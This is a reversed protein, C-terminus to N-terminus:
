ENKAVVSQKRISLVEEEGIGLDLLFQHHAEPARREFESHWKSMAAEDMGAARLMEVWAQKDIAVPLEALSQIQLMKGLLHQQTQLTRIEDGLERIRRRLVAGNASEEMSLVLRIDEITLGAQRFSCISALKERDEASYIRYGAESRESPTLLKIKDYYLLTSRSLGFHRALASIRMM